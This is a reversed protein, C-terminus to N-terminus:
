IESIKKKDAYNGPNIRVKSVIEAAVEAAKPTFFHIDAILPVKYGKSLLDKKINDLNHAQKVNPATIRIKTGSQM